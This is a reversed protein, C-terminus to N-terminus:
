SLAKRVEGVLKVLKDVTMGSPKSELYGRVIEGTAAMVDPRLDAGNLPATSLGNPDPATIVRLIRQQTNPTAVAIGRAWNHYTSNTVGLMEAMKNKPIKRSDRWADFREFTVDKWRRKTKKLSKRKKAM